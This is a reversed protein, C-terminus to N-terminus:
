QSKKKREKNRTCRSIKLPPARCGELSTESLPTGIAMRIPMNIPSYTAMRISMVLSNYTALISAM